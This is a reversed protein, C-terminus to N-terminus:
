HKKDHKKHKNLWSLRSSSIGQLGDFEAFLDNLLAGSRWFELHRRHKVRFYDRPIPHCPQLQASRPARHALKHHLLVADGPKLLLPRAYPVDPKKTDEHNLM